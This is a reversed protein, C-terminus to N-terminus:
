ASGILHLPRLAQRAELAADFKLKTHQERDRLGDITEEVTPEGVMIPQFRREPAADREIRKRYEDLTTAGASYNV